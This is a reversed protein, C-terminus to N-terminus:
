AAAPLGLAETMAALIKDGLVDARGAGGKQTVRCRGAALDALSDCEVLAPALLVKPAPASAAPGLAARLSCAPGVAGAPTTRPPLLLPPTVRYATVFPECVIGKGGADAPADFGGADGAPTSGRPSPSRPAASPPQPAAVCAGATLTVKLSPLVAAAPARRSPILEGKTCSSPTHTPPLTSARAERRAKGEGNKGYRM